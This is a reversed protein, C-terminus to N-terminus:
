STVTIQTLYMILPTRYLSEEQIFARILRTATPEYNSTPPRRGRQEGTWLCAALNEQEAASQTCASRECHLYNRVKQFTIRVFPSGFLLITVVQSRMLQSTQLPTPYKFIKSPKASSWTLPGYM